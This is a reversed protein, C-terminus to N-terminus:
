MVLLFTNQKSTILFKKLEQVSKLSQKGNIFSCYKYTISYLFVGLTM